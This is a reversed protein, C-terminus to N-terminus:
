PSRGGSRSRAIFVQTYYFTGDGSRAIGVGTRDFNGEINERHHPSSLWGDVAVAVTRSRPYDNLAVNEAFESLDFSREAERARDDFGDHGFSVRREAMDRSHDRAIRALTSDMVLARQHRRARHANVLRLAAVELDTFDATAPVPPAGTASCALVLLACLLPRM